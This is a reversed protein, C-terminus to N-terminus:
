PIFIVDLMKSTCAMCSTCGVCTNCIVGCADPQLDEDRGSAGAKIEYLEANTLLEKAETSHKKM